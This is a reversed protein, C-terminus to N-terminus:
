FDSQLEADKLLSEMNDSVKGHALLRCFVAYVDTKAGEKRLSHEDNLWAYVIVSVPTSSFRFFLRYRQPLGKKVRRWHTHAAGLTSGLRFAPNDPNAPVEQTIARYVSALLKSSPHHKYGEPDAKVLAAVEAELRNLREAFLRYYYLRYAAM